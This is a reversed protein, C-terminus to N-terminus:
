ITFKVNNQIINAGKDKIYITLDHSGSKFSKTVECINNKLKSCLISEKPKKDNLDIYSIKDFNLETVDFTFKAKGKNSTWNIKVKPPTTDVMLKVPKSSTDRGTIDTLNFSYTIENNDLSSLSVKINCIGVGKELVCDKSLDINKKQNDYNLVLYKPNEEKFKVTFDGNTFGNEPLAESIKPARSDVLFDLQKKALIQTKNNISISINYFGDSFLRTKNYSYCKSCLKVLKENRSNDFYSYSIDNPNLDSYIDLLVNKNSYAFGNIPSNIKLLTCDNDNFDIKSDCDNDIGDNCNEKTSNKVVANCTVNSGTPSCIYKGEQRCAGTGSYCVQNLLTFDEDTNGDCDNDKNDCIEPKQATANCIGWNDWSCDSKCVRKRQGIKCEGVNSGCSSIESNKDCDEKKGELNLVDVNGDGCVGNKLDNPYKLLYPDLIENPFELSVHTANQYAFVIDLILYNGSTWAIANVGSENYVFYNKNGITEITENDSATYEKMSSPSDYVKVVIANYLGNDKKYYARFSNLAYGDEDDYYESNSYSWSGHNTRILYKDLETTDIWFYTSAAIASSGDNCSFDVVYPEESGMNDILGSIYEYHDTKNDVMNNTQSNFTYTCASPNLTTLWLIMKDTIYYYGEEPYIYTISNPNSSFARMASKTTIVNNSGTENITKYFIGQPNYFSPYSNSINQAYVISILLIGFM